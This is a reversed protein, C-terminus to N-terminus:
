TQKQRIVERKLRAALALRANLADDDPQENKSKKDASSSQEPQNEHFEKLEAQRSNRKQELIKDRQKKLYQKRKELEDQNVNSAQPITTSTEPKDFLGETSKQAETIWSAAASANTRHLKTLPALAATQTNTAKAKDDLLVHPTNPSKSAQIPLVDKQISATSVPVIPAETKFGGDVTPPVPKTQNSNDGTPTQSTQLSLKIAEELMKQEQEAQAKLIEMERKSFEIARQIDNEEAATLKNIDDVVSQYAAQSKSLIENFMASDLTEDNIEKIQLNHIAQMELELNHKTMIRKFLLFDDAAWLYEFLGEVHQVVSGDQSCAESFAEKSINLEKIYDALLREMLQKYKMHIDTYEFKNEEKNEFCACHEDIFNMIPVHWVPSQLYGVIGELIWSSEQKKQKEAKSKRLKFASM